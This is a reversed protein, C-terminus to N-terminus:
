EATEVRLIEKEKMEAYFAPDQLSRTLVFDRSSARVLLRLGLAALFLSTGALLHGLLALAVGLGLLPLLVFPLLTRASMLRAAAARDVHVQLRGEQYSRVFEAHTM